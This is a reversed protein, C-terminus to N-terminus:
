GRGNGGAASSTNGAAAADVGDAAPTGSDSPPSTEPSDPANKEDPRPKRPNRESAPLDPDLSPYPGEPAGLSKQQEHLWQRYPANLDDAAETNDIVVPTIFIFLETAKNSKERSQFLLGLLPIDGLVPVKRIVDTLENRIIGSVVITQGDKVILQTTTERRDVIAGGFLVQGPVISSLEINVRLDIDRKVTIRPRVRLNLGVPKYDFSQLLNGADNPQSETIFPIDQGDFFDAEQNDSTFVTPRSLVKFDTTTSLAQLLVNLNANVTLTSTDFLSDLFNNKTNASSSGISFSNDANTPTIAQSSWRIGLALADDTSMEAVIASILVQRGPRDLSNILQVTSEKYEPPALVMVANQRWVPVVRIMGILNSAGRNATPPRSRQWWFQIQNTASQNTTTNGQADTTTSADTAFPSGSDGESLGTPARPLQALTGDQSLLTNIQEALDESNAHKLEVIAPLGVTQPRDLDEILKDLVKFNDQSKSLVVLKGSDPLAQFTFQGILRSQSNAAASTSSAPQQQGQQGQQGPQRAQTGGGSTSGTQSGFMSTLLDRVKIPDSNKLDYTKPVVDETKLPLDWQKNIQEGIQELVIQEAVVTISNQQVNASVKLGESTAAEQGPQGGWWQRNQNQNQANRQRDQSRQQGPGGGSFLEKIQEAIVAADAYRLRYTMSKMSASSPRDLANLLKEIRQLLAINGMVGIQNSEKDVTLKAYDPVTDKLMEGTAEATLNHLTYVKQAMTGRDRRELTSDDPGLVLLDAKTLEAIDRLAIIGNNEVVAVGVQGLAMLVLDLAEERPVPKDNLVTVKRSMVDQQPVVVKGTSEVIFPVIQEVTVGKFALVTPPGEVVRRGLGDTKEAPKEAANDAPPTAPQAADAPKDAPQDQRASATGCALLIALTMAPAIGVTRRSAAPRSMGIFGTKGMLMSRNTDTM